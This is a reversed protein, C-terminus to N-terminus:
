DHMEKLLKNSVDKIKELYEKEINLVREAVYTNLQEETLQKPCDTHQRRKLSEIETQQDEIVQKLNNLTTQDAKGQNKVANALQIAYAKIETEKEILLDQYALINARLQDIEEVFEVRIDKKLLAREQEMLVLKKDNDVREVFTEIQVVREVVQPVIREIQVLKDVAVKGVIIEKNKQVISEMEAQKTTIEKIYERLQENLIRIERGQRVKLDEAKKVAM